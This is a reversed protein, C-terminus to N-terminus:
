DAARGGRRAAVLARTYPDLEAGDRLRAAAVTQVLRGARMTMVTGCVAAVVAPDHSVLLMTVARERRVRLLLDLVRAQTSVDLAATPEDLLLVEPSLVLARAIALRQRQGGSMQHPYRFRLGPDLDVQILAESIRQEVGAFGHIRMPEGLTDAATRRPHLSGYPDQFVMQVRRARARRGLTEVPTGGLAVHGSAPVGLGAVTRLLTTKGCGSEGVLGWAEGAPVTFSVGDVAAGVAAFGVRLGSVEIM